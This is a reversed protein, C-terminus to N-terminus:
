DLNGILDDVWSSLDWVKLVDLHSLVLARQGDSTIVIVKADAWEEARLFLEEGTELDWLRVTNDWSGSLLKSGDPILALSTIRDKHGTLTLVESGTTLDVIHITGAKTVYDFTAYAIKTGDNSIMGGSTVEVSDNPVQGQIQSLLEGTELDYFSASAGSAVAFRKGDPLITLDSVSQLGTFSKEERGTGINFVSVVGARSGIIFHEGDPAIEVSTLGGGVREITMIEKGSRLDWIGILWDAVAVVSGGDPSRAIANIPPGIGDGFDLKTLETGTETDWERVTGDESGTLLSSRGPMVVMCNVPGTHASDLTSLVKGSNLDWIELRNRKAAVARRGDSTVALTSPAAYEDERLVEGTDLDWVVFRYDSMAGVATEENIPIAWTPNIKVDVTEEGGVVVQVNDTGLTALKEGRFLDWVQFEVAGFDLGITQLIARTGEPSLGIGGFYPSVQAEIIYLEMGTTLDWARVTGDLAASLVRQSEGLVKIEFVLDTHGTLTRLLEGSDVDWLELEGNEGENRWPALIIQNSDPTIDLASIRDGQPHLTLLEQGDGARWIKVDGMSPSYTVFRAGDPVFAVQMDEVYDPVTFSSLEAGTALDLVKFQYGVELRSRVVARSADPALTVFEFDCTYWQVACMTFLANGSELDWVKLTGDSSITVARKDDPTLTIFGIEETHGVLSFAVIEPFEMAEKLYPEPGPTPRPWETPESIPVSTPATILPPTSSPITNESGPQPSPVVRGGCGTLALTILALPLMQRKDM